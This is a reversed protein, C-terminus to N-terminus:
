LRGFGYTVGKPYKEVPTDLLWQGMRALCYGDVIDNSSSTFGWRKEAAEAMAAKNSNGKGSVWLKLTNPNILRWPVRNDYLVIRLITGIEVQTIITGGNLGLAYDEIFAVDPKWASLYRQFNKAILQLREFGTVDKVHLLSVISEDGNLCALGTKTSADVGLVKM